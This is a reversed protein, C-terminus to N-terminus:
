RIDFKKKQIIMPNEIYKQAVWQSLAKGVYDQIEVLNDLCIIKRGRSM